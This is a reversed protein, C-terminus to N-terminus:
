EHFMFHIEMTKAFFLLYFLNIGYFNISIQKRRLFNEFNPDTVMFYARKIPKMTKNVNTKHLMLQIEM